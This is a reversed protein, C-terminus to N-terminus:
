KVDRGILGFDKHAPILWQFCSFSFIVPVVGDTFPQNRSVPSEFVYPPVNSTM